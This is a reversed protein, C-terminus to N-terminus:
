TKRAWHKNNHTRPHQHHQKELIGVFNNLPPFLDRSTTPEAGIQFNVAAEAVAVFVEDEVLDVEIIEM